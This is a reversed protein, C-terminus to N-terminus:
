WFEIGISVFFHTPQPQYSKLKKTEDDHFLYDRENTHVMGNIFCVM